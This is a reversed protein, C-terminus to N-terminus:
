IEMSETKLNFCDKSKNLCYKKKYSDLLLNAELGKQEEVIKLIKLTIFNTLLTEGDTGNVDLFDSDGGTYNAIKMFNKKADEHVYFGHVKINNKKLKELEKKYYTKEAFITEGWYNEGYYNARLSDIKDKSNPPADGILIVQSVGVRNAHWLGIEIAKTEPVFGLGDKAKLQSLFSLLNFSNNEFNSNELIFQEDTTNYNRYVAFQLYICSPDIFHEELLISTREFISFVASKCKELLQTMSGTGDMLVLTKLRFDNFIPGKNWKLLFERITQLDNGIMGKEMFTKAEMHLMQSNEILKKNNM